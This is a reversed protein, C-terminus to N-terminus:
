IRGASAATRPSSRTKTEIRIDRGEQLLSGWSLLEAMAWDVKGERTMRYRSELKVVEAGMYGFFMTAYPGAAVQSLDLVRLGHLALDKKPTAAM